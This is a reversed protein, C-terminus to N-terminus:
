DRTVTVKHFTEPFDGLRSADPHAEFRVHVQSPAEIVDFCFVNVRELQENPRSEERASVFKLNAFFNRPLALNYVESPFRRPYVGFSGSKWDDSESTRQFAVGVAVSDPTKDYYRLLVAGGNKPWHDHGVGFISEETKLPSSRSIVRIVSDLASRISPLKEEPLPVMTVSHHSGENTTQNMESRESERLNSLPNTTAAISCSLGFGGAITAIVLSTTKPTGM